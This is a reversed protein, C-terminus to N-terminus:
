QSAANYAYSAAGQPTTETLLRDANDYTWAVFGSQTDDIRTPRGAADYQMTVTADAYNMQSPRNLADYQVSTIRGLRDTTSEVNGAADYTITALRGLPDRYGVMRFLEDRQFTTINGRQDSLTTM